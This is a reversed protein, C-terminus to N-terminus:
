FSPVRVLKTPESGSAPDDEVALETKGNILIHPHRQQVARIAPGYGDTHGVRVFDELTFIGITVSSSNPGHYFYAEEGAERLREALAEAERRFPGAEATFIAVEFTHLGHSRQAYQRLDNPSTQARTGRTIPELEADAFPTEGDIKAKRVFELNAEADFQDPTRYKGHYVTYKQGDDQSWLDALQTQERIQQILSYAEVHRNAGQFSALPIAYGRSSAEDGRGFEPDGPKPDWPISAWKNTRPSRSIEEYACGALPLMALILLITLRYPM